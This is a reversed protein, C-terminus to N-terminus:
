RLRLGLLMAVRDATPHDIVWPARRASSAKPCGIRRLTPRVQRQLVHTFDPDDKFGLRRTLEESNIPYESPRSM